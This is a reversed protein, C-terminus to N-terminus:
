MGGGECQGLQGGTPKERWRSSRNAMEAPQREYRRTCARKKTDPMRRTCDGRQPADACGDNMLRDRCASTRRITNYMGKKTDPMRRTCDGRQLADACGDNMLREDPDGLSHRRSARLAAVGSSSIIGSSIGSVGCRIRRRRPLEHHLLLLLPLLPLPPHHHHRDRRRCCCCLVVIHRHSHQQRADAGDDSLWLLLLLM